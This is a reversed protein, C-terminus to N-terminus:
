LLNFKRKIYGDIQRELDRCKRGMEQLVQRDCNLHGTYRKREKWTDRWAQVKSYFSYAEESEKSSFTPVPTDFRSLAIKTRMNWADLEGELKLSEELDEKKRGCDFYRRWLKRVRYVLYLYEESKTLEGDPEVTQVLRHIGQAHPNRLYSNWEIRAIKKDYTSVVPATVRGYIDYRTKFPM